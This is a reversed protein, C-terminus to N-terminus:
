SNNKANLKWKWLSRSKDDAKKQGNRELESFRFVLLFCFSFTKSLPRAPKLKRRQKPSFTKIKRSLKWLSSHARKSLNLLKFTFPFSHWHFGQCSEFRDCCVSFLVKFGISHFKWVLFVKWSRMYIFRLCFKELKWLKKNNKRATIKKHLNLTLIIIFFFTRPNIFTFDSARIIIISM